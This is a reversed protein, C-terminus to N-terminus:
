KEKINSKTEFNKEKFGKMNRGTEKRKKVM